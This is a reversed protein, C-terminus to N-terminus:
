PHFGMKGKPKEPSPAMLKRIADLIVKIDEDHKGVKLELAKLKLALEKHVALVERMLVFARMIAINVLVARRSKLVSSLMAVGQETFAYPLYKLHSGRKKLTVIQSRLSINQENLIVNQSRPAMNKGNLTVIQSRSANTEEWTLQFMFDEPFRERNRKVAQILAKTQVQYLEALDTSLMIKHGRIFFIKQNIIQLSVSNGQNKNKM